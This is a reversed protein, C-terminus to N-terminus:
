VQPDFGLTPHPEYPEELRKMEDETLKIDVAGIADDLYQLKTAGIIPSTIDPKNLVWALAIQAPKVGRETAIEGVIDAIRFDSQRFYLDRAFDDSEARATSGSGEKNRNGAIFGRAM